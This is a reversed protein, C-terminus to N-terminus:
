IIHTLEDESLGDDSIVWKALRARGVDESTGRREESTGGEACIKGAIGGGAECSRGGACFGGAGGGVATCSGGDGM